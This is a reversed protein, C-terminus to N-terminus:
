AASRRAERRHRRGAPGQDRRPPRGVGAAQRRRHTQEGKADTYTVHVGDKKVEAKSVKAGLRIDLGQKKFESRPPRPSKPMPPPSSTRCRKSSPSKALGPAEVRQGAGPRDRRRRDRGPAQARRHLGARRRQRRHAQRRVERVATRDFGFRRRPHRQHGQARSRHRRAAQGQGRQGAAATGFGYFPTVKNAKFLMAIGGTFQKM